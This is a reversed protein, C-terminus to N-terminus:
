PAASALGVLASTSVKRAEARYYRFLSYGRFLAFLAFLNGPRLTRYPSFRPAGLANSFRRPDIAGSKLRETRMAEGSSADLCVSPERLNQMTAPGVARSL